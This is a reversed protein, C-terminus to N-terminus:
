VAHRQCKIKEYRRFPAPYPVRGLRGTEKWKTGFIYLHTTHSAHTPLIVTSGRALSRFYRRVTGLKEIYAVMQAKICNVDRQELVSSIKILSRLKPLSLEAYQQASFQFVVWSRSAAVYAILWYAAPVFVGILWATIGTNHSTKQM